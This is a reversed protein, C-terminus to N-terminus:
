QPVQILESRSAKLKGALAAIDQGSVPRGDHFTATSEVPCNEFTYDSLAELQLLQGGELAGVTGPSGELEKLKALISELDEFTVPTGDVTSVIGEVPCNQMAFEVEAEAVELDEETFNPSM